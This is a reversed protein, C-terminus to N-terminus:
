SFLVTFRTGQDNDGRDIRLEGGIRKVLSQIIKMGLRDGRRRHHAFYGRRPLASAKGCRRERGASRVELRWIQRNVPRARSVTTM